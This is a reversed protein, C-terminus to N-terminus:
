AVQGDPRQAMTKCGAVCPSFYTLGNGCAPQYVRQTCGCGANCSGSLDFQNDVPSGFQAIPAHDCAMFMVALLSLNSFLEVVFMLSTLKRPAPQTKSIYCGGLM